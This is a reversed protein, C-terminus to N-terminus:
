WEFAEYDGDTANKAAEIASELYSFLNKRLNTANTNTM